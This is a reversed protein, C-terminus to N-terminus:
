KISFITYSVGFGIFSQIQGDGLGLGYAGVLSFNLRKPKTSISYNRLETTETYPNLNLISINKTRKKFWGNSEEGITIEFENRIQSNWKISDKGAEITIDYWKDSFSTRYTPFSITQKEEVILETVGKGNIKTSNKVLTASYLRGKYDEVIEQLRIISSDKSKIKLFLKKESTELIKRKAIEQGKENKETILESNLSDNLNLLEKQSNFSKLLAIVLIIIVISKFHKM